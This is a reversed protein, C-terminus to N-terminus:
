SDHNWYHFFLFKGTLFFERMREITNFKLIIPYTPCLSNSAHKPEFQLPTVLLLSCFLVQLNQMKYPPSPNTGLYLRALYRYALSLLHNIISIPESLATRNRVQIIINLRLLSSSLHM